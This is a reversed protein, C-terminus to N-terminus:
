LAASYLALLREWARDAEDVDFSPSDPVTWGHDARYVEIEVNRGAATAAARLADKDGPAQADDNRAIAILARADEAMNDLLNVPADEAAGVLGGGHFSAAAKIRSPVAAAARITWGGTMCYGQVGIGKDTDVEDQRDLWEVVAVHTEAIAAPTNAAMWPQVEAMGNNSRWDDFDDFQQGEVSRYYPNAVLVAYGEAALQRGMSLPADRLSAIDPWLIVAPHKGERPYFFMGDMTGGPAPFKVEKEGLRGQALAAAGSGVALAGAGAVAGIRAFERRTVGKAKLPVSAFTDQDCM